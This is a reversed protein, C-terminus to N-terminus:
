YINRQEDIRFKGKSGNQYKEVRTVKQGNFYIGYGTWTSWDNNPDPSGDWLKNDVVYVVHEDTILNGQKQPYNVLIKDSVNVKWKGGVKEMNYDVPSQGQHYIVLMVWDTGEPYRVPVERIYVVEGIEVFKPEFGNDDDDPNDPGLPNKFCSFPLLFFLMLLSILFISKWNKM